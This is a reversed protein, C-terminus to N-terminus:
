RTARSAGALGGGVLGLGAGVAVFLAIEALPPLALQIAGFSPALTAAVDDSYYVFGVYVLGAALGAAIAGQLAGALATPLGFFGPSAGLLHAVERERRSRDLRLRVAALAIILALGGFLAAAIWAIARVTALTGAVHDDGGDEIVVDEVGATGRLARVTPSMAVVDRVGPALTVEVSEPLSAPDVGDLLAADGGLARQLRKGTEESPVLEAREVGPMKVLENVLTKAHAEDVGDGLYVVMSAGRAPHAAAAADLNEATLASIGVAFLACTLALLTWLTARPREFAFRLTRRTASAFRAALRRWGSLEANRLRFIM